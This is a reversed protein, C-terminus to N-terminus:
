IFDVGDDHWAWAFCDKLAAALDPDGEGANVLIAVLEAREIVGTRYGEEADRIAQPTGPDALLANCRERRERMAAALQGSM